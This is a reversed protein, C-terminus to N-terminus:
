GLSFLRKASLLCSVVIGLVGRGRGAQRSELGQDLRGHRLGEQTGHFGEVDRQQAGHAVERAADLGVALHLATDEVVPAAHKSLVAVTKLARHRRAHM